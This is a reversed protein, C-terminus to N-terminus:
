SPEREPDGVADADTGDDENDDADERSEVASLRTPEGSRDEDEDGRFDGENEIASRDAFGADLDHWHHVRSEGPRWCLLVKRGRYLSPFDVLGTSLDKVEGGMEVIAELGEVLMNVDAMYERDVLTDSQPPGEGFLAKSLESLRVAGRQVKRAAQRIRPLMANVEAVTFYNRNM